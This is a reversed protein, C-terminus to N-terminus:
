RAASTIIGADPPAARPSPTASSGPTSSGRPVLRRRSSSRSSPGCLASAPERGTRGGRRREQAAREAGTDGPGDGPDDRAGRRTGPGPVGVARGLGGRRALDEVGLHERAPQRGDREVAPVLRADQMLRRALRDHEREVHGSVAPSLQGVQQAGDRGPRTEEGRAPDRRLDADATRGGVGAHEPRRHDGVAEGDRDADPGGQEVVAVPQGGALGGAQCRHGGEGVVRRSGACHPPSRLRCSLAPLWSVTRCASRSMAWCVRPPMCTSHRISPNALGARGAPVVGRFRMPKMSPM